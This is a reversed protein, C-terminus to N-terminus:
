KTKQDLDRYKYSRPEENSNIPQKGRQATEPPADGTENIYEQAQNEYGYQKRRDPKGLSPFHTNDPKNDQQM